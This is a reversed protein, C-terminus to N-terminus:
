EVGSPQHELGSWPRAANPRVELGRDARWIFARNGTRGHRSPWAVLTPQAAETTSPDILEVFYGHRFLLDGTWRTDELESALSEDSETLSRLDLPVAAHVESTLSSGIAELLIQVHSENERMALGRVSSLTIVIVVAFVAVLTAIGMSSIGLLQRQPSTKTHAM